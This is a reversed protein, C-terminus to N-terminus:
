KEGEQTANKNLNDALEQAADKFFKKDEPTLRKVVEDALKKTRSPIKSM